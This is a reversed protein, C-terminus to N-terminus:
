KSRCEQEIDTSLGPNKTALLPVSEARTNPISTNPSHKMGTAIEREIRQKRADIAKVMEPPAKKTPTVNMRLRSPVQLVPTSDRKRSKRSPGPTPTLERENLEKLATATEFASIADLVEDSASAGPMVAQELLDDFSTSEQQSVPPPM